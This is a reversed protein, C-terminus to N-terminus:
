PHMITRHRILPTGACHPLREGTFMKVLSLAQDALILEGVQAHILTSPHFSPLWM